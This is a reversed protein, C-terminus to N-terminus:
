LEVSRVHKYFFQSSVYKSIELELVAGLKEIM